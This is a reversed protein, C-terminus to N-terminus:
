EVRRVVIKTGQIKEIVVPTGKEVHGGVTLVDLEYKEEKGFVAKGSPRLPTVAVGEMGVEFVPQSLKTVKTATNEKRGLNTNLVLRNWNHFSYGRKFLYFVLAAAVLVALSLDRIAQGIDGLTMYLGGILLLFGLIGLIGFDPIFIEFVVLLLGLVFLLIPFWENLGVFTFYGAFSLLTVTAGLKSQPTLLALILGVFGAGLILGEM